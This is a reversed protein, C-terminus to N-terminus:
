SPEELFVCIWLLATWVVNAEFLLLLASELGFVCVPFGITWLSFRVDLLLVLFPLSPLFSPISMSLCLGAAVVMM